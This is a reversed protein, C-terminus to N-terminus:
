RQIANPYIREMRGDDFHEDLLQEWSQEAPVGKGRADYRALAAVSVIVNVAMFVVLLRTLWKGTKKMVWDVLGSMKPYLGKIWVVAAIGWFFCYLLNIRGGLNFPLASYDWFVKGFVIETFVSCIYEYAGGLFTGLLFLYSDSKNRDRHLLATALAIALGWVISFPGWVLSSRSMWVGATLRCFLTEVIDGLFAGIVLLWFLKDIGCHDEEVAAVTEKKQEATNPYVRNIRYNVTGAVKAGFRLTWERLRCNWRFLQPVKEEIHYMILANGLLDVGGVAILLWMLPLKVIDPLMRFLGVILDNAYKVTLFGLAGWLLSYQLCVYGDLNFKKHSYDWWKVYKMRELIKGAFWEIVTAIIMSGLFLFMGSNRLDQLFVTLTVEAMGYIFCFPGAVFGRNVYTKNKITAVSTEAIWGMFSYGFLLLILEMGTYHM